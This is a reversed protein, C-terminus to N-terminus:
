TEHGAMNMTYEVTMRDIAEAINKILIEEIDVQIEFPPYKIEM